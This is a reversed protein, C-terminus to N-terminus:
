ATDGDFAAQWLFFILPFFFIAFRGHFRCQLALSLVDKDCLWLWRPRDGVQLLNPLNGLREGKYEACTCPM